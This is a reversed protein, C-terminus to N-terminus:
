IGRTMEFVISRFKDRQQEAHSVLAASLTAVDNNTDFKGTSMIHNTDSDPVICRTNDHLSRQIYDTYERDGSPIDTIIPM